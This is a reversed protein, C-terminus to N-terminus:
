GMRSVMSVVHTRVMRMAKDVDGDTIELAKKLRSTFEDHGIRVMYNQMLSGTAWAGYSIKPLPIEVDLANDNDVFSSDAM